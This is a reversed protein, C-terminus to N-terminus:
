RSYGRDGGFLDDSYLKRVDRRRDRFNNRGGGFGYSGDQYEIDARRRNPERTSDSM